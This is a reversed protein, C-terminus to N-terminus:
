SPTLDAQNGYIKKSLKQLFARPNKIKLDLPRHIKLNITKISKIVKITDPPTTM